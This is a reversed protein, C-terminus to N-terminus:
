PLALGIAATALIVLVPPGRTTALVAFAGAALILLPISPVAEPALRLATVAMMACSAIVIGSCAGRIENARGMRVARAIPVVLIAPSPAQLFRGLPM